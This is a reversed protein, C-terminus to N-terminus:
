ASHVVLLEALLQALVRQELAVEQQTGTAAGGVVEVLVAELRPGLQEAREAFAQGRRRVLELGGRHPESRRSETGDGQGGRRRSRRRRSRM